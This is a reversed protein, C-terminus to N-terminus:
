NIASSESLKDVRVVISGKDLMTGGYVKVGINKKQGRSEGTLMSEDCCGSGLVVMGDVPITQGSTVKILDKLELLEIDTEVAAESLSAKGSKLLMAKTVKLQALKSLKEVTQKKSLSELYKGLL